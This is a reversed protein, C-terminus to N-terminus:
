EVGATFPELTFIGNVKKQLTLVEEEYSRLAVACKEAIIVGEKYLKIANDLSADEMKDVIATLQNINEEFTKAKM